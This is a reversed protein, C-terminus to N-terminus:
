NKVFTATAMGGGPQRELHASIGNSNHTDILRYSTGVTMTHLVHIDRVLLQNNHIEIDHPSTAANRKEVDDRVTTGM